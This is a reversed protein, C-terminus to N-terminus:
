DIKFNKLDDECDKLGYIFDFTKRKWVESAFMQLLHQLFTTKM